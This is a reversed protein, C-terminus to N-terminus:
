ALGRKIRILHQVVADDLQEAESMPVGNRVFDRFDRGTNEHWERIGKICYGAKHADAITLKDHSM